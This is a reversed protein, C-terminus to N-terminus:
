NAPPREFGIQLEADTFGLRRYVRIAADGAEAVIVLTRAPGAALTATGVHWTLTGALGRRRADPHTEVSQYRALGSPGDAFIGLQALLEGGIFAGYWTALGAETLARAAAVRSRVFEPDSGVGSEDILAIERLGAAQEWDAAGSLPRYTAESNPYPPPRLRGATLVVSRQATFGAAALEDGALGANDTVDVGFTVHRADPFEAAFRALWDAAEGPRLSPLLLFNGWWYGRNGPSRLVLYDGQDEVRSGERVRATLDTRYGLSRVEVGSLM